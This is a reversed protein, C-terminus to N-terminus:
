KSIIKKVDPVEDDTIIVTHDNMTLLKSQTITLKGNTFM